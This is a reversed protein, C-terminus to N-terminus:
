GGSPGRGGLLSQAIARITPHTRPDVALAAWLYGIDEQRQLMPKHEAGTVLDFRAPIRWMNTKQEQPPPLQEVGPEVPPPPAVNETPAAEATQKELAEDVQVQGQEKEESPPQM